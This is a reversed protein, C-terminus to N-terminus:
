RPFSAGKRYLDPLASPEVPESLLFGQMINCGCQLLFKATAVDKVGVGIPILGLSHAVGIAKRCLDPPGNVLKSSLKLFKVQDLRALSSAAEGFRDIALSFGASLLGSLTQDIFDQNLTGFDEDFEFCVNEPAIGFNSAETQAVSSFNSELLQRGSLNLSAFFAIGESKWSQLQQCVERLVWEGIAVIDGSREALHIFHEPMLLGATRHKWRLLAEVGLAQGRLAGTPGQEVV